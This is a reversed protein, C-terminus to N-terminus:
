QRPLKHGTKLALLYKGELCVFLVFCGVKHSGQSSCLGKRPFLDVVSLNVGIVFDWELNKETISQPVSAVQHPQMNREHGEAAKGSHIHQVLGRKNICQKPMYAQSNCAHTNRKLSIVPGLTTVGGWLAAVGGM